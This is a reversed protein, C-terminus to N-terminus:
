GASEDPLGWFPGRLGVSRFYAAATSPDRRTYGPTLRGDYWHSALRWLAALDLLYGRSEGARDLWTTV